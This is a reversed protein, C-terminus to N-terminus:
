WANASASAHARIARCIMASGINYVAMIIKELWEGAFTMGVVPLGVGLGGGVADAIFDAADGSRGLGMYAQFVEMLAGVTSCFLFVFFGFRRNPCVASYRYRDFYFACALGFYMIAHVVKDAHAFAFRPAHPVPDPFLSLYLVVLLILVSFFNRKVVNWM